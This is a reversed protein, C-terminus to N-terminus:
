GQGSPMPPAPFRPGKEQEKPKAAEVAAEAEKNVRDIEADLKAQALEPDDDGELRKLLQNMTEGVKQGSARQAERITEWAKREAERAKEFEALENRQLNEIAGPFAPSIFEDNSV